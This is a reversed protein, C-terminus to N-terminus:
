LIIRLRVKTRNDQRNLYSLILYIDKVTVRQHMLGEEVKPRGRGLTGRM